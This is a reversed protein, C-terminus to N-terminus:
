LEDLEEFNHIDDLCDDYGQKKGLYFAKVSVLFFMGFLIILGFLALLFIIVPNM